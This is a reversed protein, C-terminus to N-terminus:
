GASAGYRRERKHYERIADLFQAEGFDPWSEPVFVFETYACQWLLFNSIRQEGSTRILLDPDPIGVTSLASAMMAEDIREPDLQGDRSARALRRAAEVLELRSGYNLAMCITLRTNTRSRTEAVTILDRIDRDLASRDGIVRLQIGERVLEDIERRLFIRLLDMLGGIESQPRRWNESSFAYLTLYRVGARICAEATRKVVEAGRRHGYIPPMGRARAWRRNGDMIIAVHAPPPAPPTATAEQRLLQSAM